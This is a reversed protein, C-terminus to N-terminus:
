RAKSSGSSEPPVGGRVHEVDYLYRLYGALVRLVARATHEDLVVWDAPFNRSFLEVLEADSFSADAALGEVDRVFGRAFTPNWHRMVRHALELLNWGDVGPWLTTRLFHTLDPYAAGARAELDAM